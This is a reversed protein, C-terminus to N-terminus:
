NCDVMAEARVPETLGAMIRQTSISSVVTTTDVARETHRMRWGVFVRLLRSVRKAAANASDLIFLLLSFDRHLLHRSGDGVGNLVRLGLMLTDPYIRFVPPTLPMLVINSVVIGVVDDYVLTNIKTKCRNAHQNRVAFTRAHM